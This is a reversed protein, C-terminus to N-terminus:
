YVIIWNQAICSFHLAYNGWNPLKCDVQSSQSMFSNYYNLAFNHLLFRSFLSIVTFQLIDPFAILNFCWMFIHYKWAKGKCPNKKYLKLLSQLCLHFFHLFHMHLFVPFFTCFFFIIRLIKITDSNKKQKNTQKQKLIGYKFFFFSLFPCYRVFKFCFTGDWLQCSISRWM